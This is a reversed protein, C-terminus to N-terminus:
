GRQLYSEAFQREAKRRRYSLPPAPPNARYHGVLEAIVTALPTYAAGLDSKSRGNTLESMWVDSYPSCDPLFGNAELLGRDVRVVRPELELQKGLMGLFEDITVTEDQAINYVEGKGQGSELLNMIVQVVDQAYVHRLAYDPSQPVLMPGGDRLRLIYGYLRNFPDRASNVMPLRLSTYPFHREHYARALVDEAQRKQVGYLWEEHDYTNLPPEIIFEGEYDTESYPRELEARMLYVQGSSIFVYHDVKGQLLDVIVDAEAGDYLVFDVVADFCRGGLADELQAAITRDARLREVAAPLDDQTLGRNLITVTHGKDLLASALYHGMNRTGGIILVDM